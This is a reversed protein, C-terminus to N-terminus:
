QVFDMDHTCVYIHQIQQIQQIQQTYNVENSPMIRLEMEKAGNM